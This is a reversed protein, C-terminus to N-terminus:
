VGFLKRFEARDKLFRGFWYKLNDIVIPKSFGAETKTKLPAIVGKRTLDDVSYAGLARSIKPKDIVGSKFDLVCSDGRYLCPIVDPKDGNLVAIVAERHTAM